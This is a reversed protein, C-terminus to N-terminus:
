RGRTDRYAELMLDYLNEDSPNQGEQSLALRVREVLARLPKQFEEDVTWFLATLRSVDGHPDFTYTVVKDLDSGRGLEDVKAIMAAVERKFQDVVEPPLILPPEEAEVNRAMFRTQLLGEGLTFRVFITVPKGAVVEIDERLPMFVSQFGSHSALHVNNDALEVLTTLRLGTLTGSLLPKCIITDDTELRIPESSTLDTTGFHKSESLVPFPEGPRGYRPVRMTMGHLDNPSSALEFLHLFRRPIMIGGARLIHKRANDLIHVAPSELFWTTSLGAVVADVRDDLKATAPSQTVITINSAGRAEVSARISELFTPNDEIIIIRGARDAVFDLLTAAQWGILAFSPKAPLTAFAADIARRYASRRHPDLAASFQFGPELLFTETMIDETVFELGHM